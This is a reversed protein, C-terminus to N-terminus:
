NVSFDTLSEDTGTRPIGLYSGMNLIDYESPGFTAVPKADLAFQSLKVGTDAIHIRLGSVISGRHTEKGIIDDFIVDIIATQIVNHNNSELEKRANAFAQNLEIKLETFIEEVTKGM